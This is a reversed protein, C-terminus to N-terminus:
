KIFYTIFIESNKSRYPICYKKMIEEFIEIFAHYDKEKNFDHIMDITAEKNSKLNEVFERLSLKYINIESMELEINKVFQNYNAEQKPIYSMIIRRIDKPVEITSDVLKMREKNLSICWCRRSCQNFDKCVCGNCKDCFMKNVCDYFACYCDCHIHNEDCEEDKCNGHECVETKCLNCHCECEHNTRCQCCTKVPKKNGRKFYKPLKDKKCMRCTQM